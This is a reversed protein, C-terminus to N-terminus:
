LLLDTETAWCMEGNFTDPHSICAGLLLCVCLCMCRYQLVRTYRDCNFTIQAAVSLCGVFCRNFSHIRVLCVLSNFVAVVVVVFEFRAVASFTSSLFRSTNWSSRPALQALWIFRHIGYCAFRYSNLKNVYSANADLASVNQTNAFNTHNPEWCKRKTFKMHKATRTHTHTNNQTRLEYVEWNVYDLHALINPGGGYYDCYGYFIRVLFTGNFILLPSILVAATCKYTQPDPFNYNTSSRTENM